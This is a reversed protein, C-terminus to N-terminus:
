SRRSVSNQATVAGRNPPSLRSRSTDGGTQGSTTRSDQYNKQAAELDLRARALDAETQQREAIRGGQELVQQQTQAEKIAAQAKSVEAAAVRTDLEILPEDKSVQQGRSVLVKTVLGTREARVPLWEIPEVKGNTPLTSVMTERVVKTFDVEPPTTKKFAVWATIACAGLVLIVLWSRGRSVARGRATILCYSGNQKNFRWRRASQLALGAGAAGARLLERIFFSEVQRRHSIGAGPHRAVIDKAAALLAGFVPHEGVCRFWYASNDRDPEQRHLIAHWFSAEASKLDQVIKHCEDFCSFYLWLGGLAEQRRM